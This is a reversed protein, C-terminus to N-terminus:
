SCTKVPAQGLLQRVATVQGSPIVPIRLGAKPPNARPQIQLDTIGRSSMELVLQQAGEQNKFIGLSIANRLEGETILYTERVGAAKLLQERRMAERPTGAVPTVVWYSNVTEIQIIEPQLAPEATAITRQLAETEAATLPGVDLCVSQPPPMPPLTGGTTPNNAADLSVPRANAAGIEQQQREPERPDEILNPLWGMLQAFVLGNLLLLVVFIIRM